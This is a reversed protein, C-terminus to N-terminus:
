DTEGGTRHNTGQIKLFPGLEAVFLVSYQVATM